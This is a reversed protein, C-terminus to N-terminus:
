FRELCARNIKPFGEYPIIKFRGQKYGNPSWGDYQDVPMTSLHRTYLDVHMMDNYGFMCVDLYQKHRQPHFLICLLLIMKM